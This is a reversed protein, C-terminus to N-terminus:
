QNTVFVPSCDMLNAREGTFSILASVRACVAEQGTFKAAVYDSGWIYLISSTTMTNGTVFFTTTVANDSNGRSDTTGIRDAILNGFRDRVQAIMQKRGADGLSTIRITDPLLNISVPIEIAPTATFTVPAVGALSATLIPLPPNITGINWRTAAYGGGNTVVSDRSVTGNNNVTWRVVQGPVGNGFRDVAHVFLSDPVLTGLKIDNPNPSVKVLQVARDPLASARVRASLLQNGAEGVFRAEIVQSDAVLSGLTWKTGVIGSSDTLAFAAPVAGGGSVVVFNVIQGKVARGASDTLSFRIPNPLEASAVAQQNAGEVVKLSVPPGIPIPTPATASKDCSVIGLLYAFTSVITRKM